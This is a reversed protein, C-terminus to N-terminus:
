HDANASRLNVLLSNVDSLTIKRHTRLFSRASQLLAQQENPQVDTLAILNDCHLRMHGDVIGVGCLASLAALNQMLGVVSVVESLTKVDPQGMLKFALKAMPHVQTVGGVTGLKIPLTMQGILVDGEISWTSLGQYSGSRAAYAHAGAEIARFDNGTALLIADIGNLIGKNHTVARYTDLQALESASVIAQQMDSPLGAYQICVKVLSRDNYNSVIAIGTQWNLGNALRKIHESAQTILNAGMAQQTDVLIDIVANTSRRDSGLQRLKLDVVGGGRAHLGSLTQCNVQDIWSTKHQNFMKQAQEFDDLQKIHVQGLGIDSIQEAQVQSDQRLAKAIRSLAAVVSTEETVMPIVFFQQNIKVGPVVSFPLQFGGIVNESLAQCLDSLQSLDPQTLMTADAATLLGADLCQQIQEQVSLRHFGSPNFPPQIPVAPAESM